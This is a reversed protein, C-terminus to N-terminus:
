KRPFIAHRGSKILAQASIIQKNKTKLNYKSLEFQFIERTIASAIRKSSFVGCGALDPRSAPAPTIFSFHAALINHMLPTHRQCCSQTFCSSKDEKQVGPQAGARRKAEFAQSFNLIRRVFTQLVSGASCTQNNPLVFANPIIM